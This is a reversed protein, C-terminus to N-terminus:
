FMKFINQKVDYMYGSEIKLGHEIRCFINQLM